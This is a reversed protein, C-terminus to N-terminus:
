HATCFRKHVTQVVHMETGPASQYALHWNKHFSIGRVNAMASGWKLGAVRFLKESDWVNLNIGSIELSNHGPQFKHPSRAGAWVKSARIITLRWFSQSKWSWCLWFCLLQLSRTKDSPQLKQLHLNGSQYQSTTSLTSTSTTTILFLLLMQDVVVALSAALSTFPQCLPWSVEMDSTFEVRQLSSKEVTQRLPLLIIM